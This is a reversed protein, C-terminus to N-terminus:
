PFGLHKLGFNSKFNTQERRRKGGIGAGGSLGWGFGGVGDVQWRM